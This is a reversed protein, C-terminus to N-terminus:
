SRAPISTPSRRAPCREVPVGEARAERENRQQRGTEEAAIDKTLKTRWGGPRHQISIVERPYATSRYPGQQGAAAPQVSQMGLQIRRRNTVCSAIDWFTSKQARNNQAPAPVSATVTAAMVSFRDRQGEENVSPKATNLRATPALIRTPPKRDPAKSRDPPHDDTVRAGPRRQTDPKTHMRTVKRPLCM